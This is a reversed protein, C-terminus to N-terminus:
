LVGIYWSSYPILIRRQVEGLLYLDGVRVGRWFETVSEDRQAVNELEAATLPSMAYMQVLRNMSLNPTAQPFLNKIRIAKRLDHGQMDVSLLKHKQDDFPLGGM